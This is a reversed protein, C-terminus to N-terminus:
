IYFYHICQLQKNSNQFNQFLKFIKNLNIQCIKLSLENNSKNKILKFIKTITSQFPSNTIIILM